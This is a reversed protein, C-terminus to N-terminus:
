VNSDDARGAHDAVLHQAHQRLPSKRAFTDDCQGGLPRFAQGHGVVAARDCDVLELLRSEFADIDREEGGATVDPQHVARDRGLGSGQHDVVARGPAHLLVHREDDGLHVAFVDAVVLADDGVRVAARDWQRHDEVRQLLLGAEFPDEDGRVLRRRARAPSEDVLELLLRFRDGFPLLRRDDGVGVLKGVVHHRAPPAGFRAAVVFLFDLDDVLRALDKVIRLQADRRGAHTHRHRHAM